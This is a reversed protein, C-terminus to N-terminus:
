CFLFSLSLSPQQLTDGRHLGASRPSPPGPGLEGVQLTADKPDQPAAWGAEKLLWAAFPSLGEGISERQPAGPPPPHPAVGPLHGQGPEQNRESERPQLKGRGMPGLQGAQLSAVDPGWKLLRGYSCERQTRLAM